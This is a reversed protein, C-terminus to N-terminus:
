GVIRAAGQAELSLALPGDVTLKDGPVYEVGEHCITAGEQVEIEADPIGRSVQVATPEQATVAKKPM